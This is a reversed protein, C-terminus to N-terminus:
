VTLLMRMFSSAKITIASTAYYAQLSIVGTASTLCTLSITCLGQLLTFANINHWPTGLAIQQNFNADINILGVGGATLTPYTFVLYLVSSVAALTYSIDYKIVAPGNGVINFDLGISAQTTTLALDTTTMAYRYFKTMGQSVVGWWLNGGDGAATTHGHALTVSTSGPSSISITM